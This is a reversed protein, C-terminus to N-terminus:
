SDYPTTIAEVIDLFTPHLAVVVGLFDYVPTFLPSPPHPLHFFDDLPRGTTRNM